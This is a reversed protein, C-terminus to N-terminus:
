RSVTFSSIARSQVHVNEEFGGDGAVDGHPRRPIQDAQFFLLQGAFPPFVVALRV